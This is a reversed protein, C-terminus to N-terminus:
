RKGSPDRLFTLLTPLVSLLSKPSLILNLQCCALAGSSLLMQESFALSSWPPSREAMSWSTLGSPRATWSLLWPLSRSTFSSCCNGARLQWHAFGRVQISHHNLLHTLLCLALRSKKICLHERYNHYLM